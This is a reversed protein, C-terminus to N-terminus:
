TPPSPSAPRAQPRTRGWAIDAGDWIIVRYTTTSAPDIYGVILSVGNLRWLNSSLDGDGFTFTHTGVGKAGVLSTVDAFYALNLIPGGASVPQTETGILTGDLSTGDFVVQQDKFIAPLGSCDGSGAAPTEVCPRERGAWYLLAFRVTGGVTVTLDVPSGGWTRLGASDAVLTLGKQQLDIFPSLPTAHGALAFALVLAVTLATLMRHFRM